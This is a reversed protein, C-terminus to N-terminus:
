LSRYFVAYVINGSCALEKTYWQGDMSSGYLWQLVHLVFCHVFVRLVKFYHKKDRYLLLCTNLSFGSTIIQVRSSTLPKFVKSNGIFSLIQCFHTDAWFEVFNRCLKMQFHLMQTICLHARSIPLFCSIETHLYLTNASQRLISTHIRITLTGNSLM